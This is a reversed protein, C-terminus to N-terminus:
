WDVFFEIKGADPSTPDPAGLEAKVGIVACSGEQIHICPSDTFWAWGCPKTGRGGVSECARDQRIRQHKLRSRHASHFTQLGYVDQRRSSPGRSSRQRYIRTRKAVSPFEGHKRFCITPTTTRGVVGMLTAVSSSTSERKMQGMQRSTNLRGTMMPLQWCLYSPSTARPPLFHTIDGFRVHIEVSIFYYIKVAMGWGLAVRDLAQEPVEIRTCFAHRAMLVPTAPEDVPRM